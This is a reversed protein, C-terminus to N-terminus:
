ARLAAALTDLLSKEETSAGSRLGLLRSFGGSVDAVQRCAGLIREIREEREEPSLVSLGVRIAEVATAFLEDVPRVRLWEVLQAHAPSTEELGREAAIRLVVLRERESVRGEAWAVQVLPALLFAPGTDLTVGLAVIRQLLDPDDVQLKKALAVSIEQLKSHERLKELLASEEKRFYEDELARERETIIHDPM